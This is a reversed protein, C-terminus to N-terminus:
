SRAQLGRYNAFGTTHDLLISPTLRRWRDEGALSQYAPYDPLPKPLYLVILRDLDIRGEDV